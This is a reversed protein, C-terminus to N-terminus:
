WLIQNPNPNNNIAVWIDVYYQTYRQPLTRSGAVASDSISIYNGSQQYAYAVVYHGIDWGNWQAFPYRYRKQIPDYGYTEINYIPADLYQIDLTTYFIVDSTGGINQWVYTNQSEHANLAGPMYTRYTGYTVTTHMDKTLYTAPHNPDGYSGTGIPYNVGYGGLANHGAAPGCQYGYVGNPEVDHLVGPISGSPPNVTMLSSM